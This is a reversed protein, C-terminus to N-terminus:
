CGGEELGGGAWLCMEEFPGGLSEEWWPESRGLASGPAARREAGVAWHSGIRM